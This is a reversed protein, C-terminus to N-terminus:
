SCNTHRFRSYAGTGIIYFVTVIYQGIVGEEVLSGHQQPLACLKLRPFLDSGESAFEASYFVLCHAATQGCLINLGLLMFAMHRTLLVLIAQQCNKTEDEAM